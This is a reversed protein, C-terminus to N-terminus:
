KSYFAMMEDYVDQGYTDILLPWCNDRAIQALADYDAQEMDLVEVGAAELKDMYDQEEVKTQAISEDFIEKAYTAFADQQEATMTDWFKGSM